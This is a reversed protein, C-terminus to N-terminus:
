WGRAPVEWDRRGVALQGVKSRVQGRGVLRSPFLWVWVSPGDLVRTRPETVESVQQRWGVGSM